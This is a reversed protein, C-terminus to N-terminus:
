SFLLLTKIKNIVKKPQHFDVEVMPFITTEGDEISGDDRISCKSVVMSNSYHLLSVHYNGDETLLHVSDKDLSIKEVIGSKLDISFQGTSFTNLCKLCNGIVQFELEPFEKEDKAAVIESLVTNDIANIDCSLKWRLFKSSKNNEYTQKEVLCKIHITADEKSWKTIKTGHFPVIENTRCVDKCIPCYICHSWLKQVSLIKM